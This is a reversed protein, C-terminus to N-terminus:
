MEGALAGATYDQGHGSPLSIVRLRSALAFGAVTAQTLSETGIEALPLRLCAGATLSGCRSVIIPLLRLVPVLGLIQSGRRGAFGPFLSFIQGGFM